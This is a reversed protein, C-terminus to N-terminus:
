VYRNGTSNLFTGMPCNIPAGIGRPCYTGNPCVDGTIGDTPRAQSAGSTCFYGAECDYEPESLEERPCYKGPDCAIPLASGNPCYHAVPCRATPLLSPFAFLVNNLSNSNLTCLFSSVAILEDSGLIIKLRHTPYIM